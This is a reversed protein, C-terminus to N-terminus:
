LFNNQVSEIIDNQKFTNNVWILPCYELNLRILSFYLIEFCFYRDYFDKCSRKISGFIRMAKNKIFKTHCSLNLKSDFVIGRDNFNSVLELKFKSISYNFIIPNKILNFRM